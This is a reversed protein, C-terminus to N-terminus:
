GIKQAIQSATQNYYRQLQKLDKHGTVLRLDLIHLKDALVTTAEHRLDHFRLNKIGLTACTERWYTCITGATLGAVSGVKLPQARLLEVARSSLPVNRYDGNKTDPLHVYREELHVNEWTLAAIEGERMATEIALEMVLLMKRRKESFFARIAGLEATTPRRDRKRSDDPRSVGQMPNVVPLGKKVYYGFVASLLNMYRRVSAPKITQGEVWNTIDLRTVENIPKRTWAVDRILKNIRVREARGGKKTPSVKDRYEEMLERATRKFSRVDVFKAADMEGEVKRAWAEAQSKLRFTEIQTKHGKRRIVARWADGRKQISAM